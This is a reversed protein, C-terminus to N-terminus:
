VRILSIATLIVCIPSTILTFKILGYNLDHWTYGSTGEAMIRNEANRIPPILWSILDALLMGLPLVMVLPAVIQVVWFVFDTSSVAPASSPINRGQHLERHALMEAMLFLIALAAESVGFFLFELISVWGPLKAKAARRALVDPRRFYPTRRLVWPVLIITLPISLISGLSGM